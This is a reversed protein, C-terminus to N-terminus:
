QALIGGSSEAGASIRSFRYGGIVQVPTSTTPTNAGNGLQGNLGRGWCWAAGTIDLGCFHFSGGALSVFAHGGTVQVPVGSGGQFPKSGDGLQGYSNAGWCWAYGVADLACTMGGGAQIQTLVHEGIVPVPTSVVEAFSGDGLQGFLNEGWCWAQGEEDLACTHNQGTAIQM